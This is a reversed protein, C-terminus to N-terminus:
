VAENLGHTHTHDEPQGGKIQGQEQLHVVCALSYSPYRCSSPLKRAWSKKGRWWAVPKGVAFLPSEALICSEGISIRLTDNIISM